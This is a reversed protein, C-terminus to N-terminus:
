LKVAVGSEILEAVLGVPAGPWVSICEEDFADGTVFARQGERYIQMADVLASWNCSNTLADILAQADGHELPLAVCDTAGPSESRFASPLEIQRSPLNLTQLDGELVVLSNGELARLVAAVLGSLNLPRIWIVAIQNM